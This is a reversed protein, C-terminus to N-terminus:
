VIIKSFSYFSLCTIVLGVYVTTFLCMGFHTLFFNNKIPDKSLFADNMLNNLYSMEVENITHHQQNNNNFDVKQKLSEFCVDMVKESNNAYVFSDSFSSFQNLPLVASSYMADMITDINTVFLNNIREYRPLLYFYKYFVYGCYITYIASIIIYFHYLKLKRLNEFFIKVFGLFM